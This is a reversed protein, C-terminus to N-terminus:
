NIEVEFQINNLTNSFYDMDTKAHEFLKQVSRHIMFTIQKFTERDLITPFIDTFNPSKGELKMHELYMISWGHEDFSHIYILMCLILKSLYQYLQFENLQTNESYLQSSYEILEIENNKFSVNSLSLNFNGRSPLPLSILIGNENVNSSRLINLFIVSLDEIKKKNNQLDSAFQKLNIREGDFVYSKYPQTYKTAFTELIKIVTLFHYDHQFNCIGLPTISYFIGREKFPSIECILNRRKLEDINQSFLKRSVGNNKGFQNSNLVYWTKGRSIKPESYMIFYFLIAQIMPYDNPREYTLHALIYVKPM